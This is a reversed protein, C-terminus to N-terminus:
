AAGGKGSVRRTKYVATARMLGPLPLQGAVEARARKAMCLQVSRASRHARQAAIQVELTEEDTCTGGGCALREAAAELALLLELPDGGIVRAGADDSVQVGQVRPWRWKKGNARALFADAARNEAPAGGKHLL